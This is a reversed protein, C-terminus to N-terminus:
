NYEQTEEADQTIDSVSAPTAEARGPQRADPDTAGAGRSFLPDGLDNLADQFDGIAPEM